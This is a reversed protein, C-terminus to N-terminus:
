NLLLGAATIVNFGMHLWISRSLNGSRAAQIGSVVSLILLPVVALIAKPDLLPHVVAFIVSTVAIAVAPRYRRQLSRLVLGRFLLEEAIPAAIAVSLAAALAGAGSSKDIITVVAQTPPKGM